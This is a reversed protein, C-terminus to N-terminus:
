AEGRQQATSTGLGKVFVFAILLVFIFILVSVANGLGINVRSITVYYGLISVTETGNAGATQIYVTDFVRFADLTRFLLAVLIAPKMLPLTIRVFRQWANAGDVKAAENLEDPVLALGALLLLAMFPTTKWVETLIIVIFSGSQQTLPAATDSILPLGQVFGSAPDFAYRWTFAAVVTIIGYPILIAARVPGRGFIARHMVLAIAMGLVLELGVSFVTIILTHFVDQWWTSSTLIDGYNALGVFEKEEPFRLDYKQLSLIVAYVIPFGTVLIMVLVAPACLLWGLRREERARESLGGRRPPPAETTRTPATAAEM